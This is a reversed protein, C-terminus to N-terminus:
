QRAGSRADFTVREVQGGPMLVTAVYVLRGGQDCLDLRLLEGQVQGQVTAPRVAAGSQVAQRQQDPSLCAAAAAQPAAALLLLALLLTRTRTM